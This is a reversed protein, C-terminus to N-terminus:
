IDERTKCPSPTGGMSARSNQSQSDPLEAGFSSWVWKETQARPSVHTMTGKGRLSVYQPPQKSLLTEWM